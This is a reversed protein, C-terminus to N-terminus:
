QSAKCVASKEDTHKGNEIDILRKLKFVHIIYEILINQDELYQIYKSSKFPGGSLFGLFGVFCGVM